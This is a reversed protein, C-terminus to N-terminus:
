PSPTTGPRLRARRVTAHAAPAFDPHFGGVSFVAYPDDGWGARVTLGGTVPFDELLPSDVLVADFELTGRVVDLVGTRRVDLLAPLGDHGNLRTRM